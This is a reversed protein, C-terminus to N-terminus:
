GAGADATRRRPGRCCPPSGLDYATSGQGKLSPAYSHAGLIVPLLAKSPILLLQFLATRQTQLLGLRRCRGQAQVADGGPHLEEQQQHRLHRIAALESLALAPM